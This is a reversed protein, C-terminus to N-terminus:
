QVAVWEVDGWSDLLVRCADLGGNEAADLLEPVRMPHLVMSAWGKPTIWLVTDDVTGLEAAAVEEDSKEDPVRFRERLQGGYGIQRAGKSGKEWEHWRGLARLDGDELFEAVLSWVPRTKLGGRGRGPQVYALEFGLGEVGMKAVYAGIEDGAQDGVVLHWEQGARLADRGHKALGASWRRLMGTALDNLESFGAGPDFAVVWHVHVHWGNRGWTVEWVRIWGVVGCRRVASLYSKGGTARRWGARAASWLAALPEGQRHRMTFTGFGLVLGDAAALSLLSGIEVARHSLVKSACVPDAWVSGCSQLGSLGARGDRVRVGIGTVDKRRVRGCKQVAPLSSWRWLGARSRHREARRDQTLFRLDSATKLAELPDPPSANIGLERPARKPLGESVLSGQEPYVEVTTGTM